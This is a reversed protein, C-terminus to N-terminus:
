AVRQEELYAKVDEVKYLRRRGIRVSPIKLRDVTKTCIKLAAALEQRTLVLAPAAHSM